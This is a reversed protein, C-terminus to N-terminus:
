CSRTIRRWGCRRSAPSSRTELRGGTWSGSRSSGTARGSWRSTWWRSPRRTAATFRSGIWDAFEVGAGAADRVRQHGAGSEMEFQLRGGSLEAAVVVANARHAAGEPQGDFQGCVPDGNAGGSQERGGAMGAAVREGAGCPQAWADAADPGSAGFSNTLGTGKWYVYREADFVLAASAQPVQLTFAANLVNYGNVSVLLNDSTFVPQEAIIFRVGEGSDDIQFNVSSWGRQGASFYNLNMRDPQAFKFLDEGVQYGLVALLGNGDVPQTTDATMNGTAYDLFVRCLLQDAIPASDLPVINGQANQIAPIFQGYTSSIPNTDTYGINPKFARFVLNQIYLAAPMDTRWRGAYKRNDQYSAADTNGPRAGRLAIYQAM